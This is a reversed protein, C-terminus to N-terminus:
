PLLGRARLVADGLPEPVVAFTSTPGTPRYDLIGREFYQVTYAQPTGTTATTPIQESLPNGLTYPGGHALYYDLFPGTINHHTAFVYISDAWSLLRPAQPYLPQTAAVAAGLTAISVTATYTTARCLRDCELRSNQFYQVLLGNERYAETRPYGFTALGGYQGFISQFAGAVNHGTPAFYLAGQSTPLPSAPAAVGKAGSALTTATPTITTGPTPTAALPPTATVTASVLSTVAATVVATPPTAPGTVGSERLILPAGGILYLTPDRPDTNGTSGDLTLHYRGDAGLTPTTTIASTPSLLVADHGAAAVTIAASAPSTNWLVTVQRDGQRLVVRNVAAPWVWEARATNSALLADVEAVSPLSGDDHWTYYASDLGAFAGTVTQLAAFAPRLSGDPRLLGFREPGDVGPPADTMRYVSIRRVGAAAALAFSQVIYSAQQALTARYPLRPLPGAPDDYPAVNTEDIWIAKTYGHTALIRRFLTPVTFSNLPNNYAHLGVGDFYARNARATPDADAQRLLSELFQPRNNEKDWWYTLGGVVVECAPDAAKAAQYTTKLLLYYDAVSGGWTHLVSGANRDPENWVFWTKVLGRYRTVLRSVFGGWTNRADNYPADLGRPVAVPGQAPHDAAWAPTGYLLGAIARGRSGEDTLTRSPYPEQWDLGSSPQIASWTFLLREWRVGAQTARGPALYAEVAGFRRDPSIPIPTTTPPPASADAAHDAALTVRALPSAPPGLGVVLLGMLLAAALAPRRLSYPRSHHLFSV